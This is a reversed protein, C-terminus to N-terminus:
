MEKNATPMDPGCAVAFHGEDDSSLWSEATGDRVNLTFLCLFWLAFYYLFYPFAFHTESLFSLTQSPSLFLLCTKNKVILHLPGPDSMQSGDGPSLRRSSGKNARQRKRGRKRGRDRTWWRSKGKITGSIMWQSPDAVVKWVAVESRWRNNQGFTYFKSRLPETSLLDYEFQNPNLPVTATRRYM